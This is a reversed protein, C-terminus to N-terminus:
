GDTPEQSNLKKEMLARREKAKSGDRPGYRPNIWNRDVKCGVTQSARAEVHAPPAPSYWLGCVLDFDDMSAFEAKQPRGRLRVENKVPM